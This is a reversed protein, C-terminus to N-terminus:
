RPCLGPARRPTLSRGAGRPLGRRQLGASSDKFDGAHVILSAHEAAIDDLMRPLERREYDSYPTDGIAAFRWTEAAATWPSCCAASGPPLCGLATPKSPSNM